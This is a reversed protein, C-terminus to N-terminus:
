PTLAKLTQIHRSQATNYDHQSLGLSRTALRLLNSESTAIAGDAAALDILVTLIEIRLDRDALDVLTRCFTPVGVTSFEVAHRELLGCIADVGSDTMGHLRALEARVRHAEEDSYRRDAYAVAALLGAMAVVIELTEADAGPLEARVSEVLADIASPERAAGRKIFWDFM